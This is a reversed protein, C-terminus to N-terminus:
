VGMKDIRFEQTIVLELTKHFVPLSAKKCEDLLRSALNGVGSIRGLFTNINAAIGVHDFSSHHDRGLHVSCGRAKGDFM